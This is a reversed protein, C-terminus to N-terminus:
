FILTLIRKLGQITNKGNKRQVCRLVHKASDHEACENSKLKM